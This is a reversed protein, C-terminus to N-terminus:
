TLSTNISLWTAPTGACRPDGFPKADDITAV